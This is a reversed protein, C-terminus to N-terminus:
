WNAVNFAFTTRCLLGFLLKLQHIKRRWEIVLGNISKALHSFYKSLKVPLAAHLMRLLNRWFSTVQHSESCPFSTSRKRPSTRDRKASETTSLLEVQSCTQDVLYVVKGSCKKDPIRIAALPIQLLKSKAHTSKYPQRPNSVSFAQNLTMYGERSIERGIEILSSCGSCLQHHEKTCVHHKVEM